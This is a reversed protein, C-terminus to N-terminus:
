PKGAGASNTRPQIAQLVVQECCRHKQMHRLYALKVKDKKGRACELALDFRELSADLTM